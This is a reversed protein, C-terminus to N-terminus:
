SDIVIKFNILYINFHCKKITLNNFIYINFVKVAKAFKFFDVAKKFTKIAKLLWMIYLIFNNIIEKYAKAKLVKLSVITNKYNFVQRKNRYVAKNYWNIYIINLNNTTSSSNVGKFLLETTFNFYYIKARNAVVKAYNNSIIILQLSNCDLLVKIKLV